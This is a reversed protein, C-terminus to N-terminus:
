LRTATGLCKRRISSSCTSDVIRGREVNTARVFPLGDALLPPPEGLGYWISTVRKLSLVEWGVPIEGLWEVGFDKYAPYPKYRGASM